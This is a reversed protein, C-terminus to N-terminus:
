ISENSVELEKFEGYKPVLNERNQIVTQVFSKRQDATLNSNYENEINKVQFEEFTKRFYRNYVERDFAIKAFELSNIMDSGGINMCALILDYLEYRNERELDSGKFERYTRGAFSCKLKIERDSKEKSGDRLKMARHKTIVMDHSDNLLKLADTMLSFYHQFAMREEIINAM